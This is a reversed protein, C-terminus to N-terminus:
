TEPDNDKTPQEASTAAMRATEVSVGNAHVRLPCSNLQRMGQRGGRVAGETQGDASV